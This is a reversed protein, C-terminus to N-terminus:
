MKLVIDAPQQGAPLEPPVNLESDIADNGQLAPMVVMPTPIQTGRSAPGTEADVAAGNGDMKGHVNHSFSYRCFRHFHCIKGDLHCIIGDLHCIIGYM